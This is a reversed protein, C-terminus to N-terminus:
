VFVHVCVNLSVNNWYDSLPFLELYGDVASQM